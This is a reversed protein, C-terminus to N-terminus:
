AIDKGHYFNTGSETLTFMPQYNEDLVTVPFVGGFRRVAQRIQTIYLRNVIEYEDYNDSFGLGSSGDSRHFLYIFRM